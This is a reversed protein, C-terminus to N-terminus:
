GGRSSQGRMATNGHEAQNLTQLAKDRPSIQKTPDLNHQPRVLLQDEFCFAGDASVGVADSAVCGARRRDQTWRLPFSTQAQVM